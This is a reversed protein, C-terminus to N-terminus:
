VLFSPAGPALTPTNAPGSWFSIAVPGATFTFIGNGDLEIGSLM